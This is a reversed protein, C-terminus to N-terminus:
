YRTTEALRNILIRDASTTTATEGGPRVSAASCGATQPLM